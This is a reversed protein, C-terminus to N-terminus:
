PQPAIAWPNPKATEASSPKATSIQTETKRAAKRKASPAPIPAAPVGPSASKTVPQPVVAPPIAPQAVQRQYVPKDDSRELWNKLSPMDTKIQVGGCGALLVCICGTFLLRSTMM